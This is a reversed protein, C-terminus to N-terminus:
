YRWKRTPDKRKNNWDRVGFIVLAVIVICLSVGVAVDGMSISQKTAPVVTYEVSAPLDDVAIEADDSYNQNGTDADPVVRIGLADMYTGRTEIYLRFSQVDIGVRQTNRKWQEICDAGATASDDCGTVISLLMGQGQTASGPAQGLSDTYSIIYSKLVDLNILETNFPITTFDLGLDDVTAATIEVEDASVNIEGCLASKIWIYMTATIYEAMTYSKSPVAFNECLFEWAEKTIEVTSKDSGLFMTIDMYKTPLQMGSPYLLTDLEEPSDVALVENTDVPIVDVAVIEDMSEVAYVGTGMFISITILLTFVGLRLKM